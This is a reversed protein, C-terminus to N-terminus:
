HVCQFNIRGLLSQPKYIIKFAQQDHQHYYAVAYLIMNLIKVVIYHKPIDIGKM